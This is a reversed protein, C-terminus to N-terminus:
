DKKKFERIRLLYNVVRRDTLWNKSYDKIQVHVLDM